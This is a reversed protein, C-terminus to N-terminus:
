LLLILIAILGVLIEAGLGLLTPKRIHKSHHITKHYFDIFHRSPKKSKVYSLKFIGLLIDPLIAVFMGILIPILYELKMMKRHWIIFIVIILGTLGDILLQLFFICLTKYSKSEAFKEIAKRGYDWHPIRDLILHSVFGLVIIWGINKIKAGIAAGVLLHPALIM